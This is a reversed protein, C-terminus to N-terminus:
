TGSDEKWLEHNKKIFKEMIEVCEKSQLNTVKVGHAKLFRGSDTGKYNLNEGVVLKKIGFHVIAGSCLFCPMLTSYLVTGKYNKIRGANKLCDIEAHLIPSNKQVRRNHGRGIIKGNRVLVAGIPIGGENLGRKAEKLAEKMFKVM